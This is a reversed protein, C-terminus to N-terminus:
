DDRKKHLLLYNKRSRDSKIPIYFYYPCLIDHGLNIIGDVMKPM